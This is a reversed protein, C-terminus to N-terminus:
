VCKGFIWGKASKGGHRWTGYWSKEDDTSM